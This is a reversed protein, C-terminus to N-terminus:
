SVGDCSSDKQFAAIRAVIGGIGCWSSDKQILAIGPCGEPHLRRCRVIDWDISKM